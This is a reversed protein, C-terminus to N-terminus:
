QSVSFSFVDSYVEKSSVSDKVYLQYYYATEAKLSNLFVGYRNKSVLYVPYHTIGKEKYFSNKDLSLRLGVEKYPYEQLTFLLTYIEEDYRLETDLQAFADIPVEITEKRCSLLLLPMLAALLLKGWSDGNKKLRFKM